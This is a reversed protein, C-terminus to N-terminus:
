CTVFHGRAHCRFANAARWELEMDRMLTTSGTLWDLATSADSFFQINAKVYRQGDSIVSDVILQNHVDGPLVLALHRLGLHETCPLWFDSLWAQEDPGLPPLSASDILWRNAGQQLSFVMLEGFALQFKSLSMPGHWAWRLLRLRPYFQICISDLIRIM